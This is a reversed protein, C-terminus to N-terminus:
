KGEEKGECRSYYFKSPKWIIRPTLARTGIIRWDAVFGYVHHHQSNNGFRSLVFLRVFHLCILFNKDFVNHTASELTRCLDWTSNTGLLYLFNNVLSIHERTKRFFTAPLTIICSASFILIKVPTVGHSTWKVGFNKRSNQTMKSSFLRRKKLARASDVPLILRAWSGKGASNVATSGYNVYHM